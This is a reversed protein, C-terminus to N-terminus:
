IHIYIILSTEYYTYLLINHHYRHFIFLWLIYKHNQIKEIILYASLHTWSRKFIRSETWHNSSHNLSSMKLAFGNGFFIICILFEWYFQIINPKWNLVLLQIYIVYLWIHWLSLFENTQTNVVGSMNLTTKFSFDVSCYFKYKMAEM